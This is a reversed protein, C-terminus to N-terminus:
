RKEVEDLAIEAYARPPAPRDADGGWVGLAYLAKVAAVDRLMALPTLAGIKSGPVDRWPVRVSAVGVGRAQALHLLEVDYAWGEVHLHPLTAEAAEATLLKFGCQTDEVGAVCAGAALAFVRGMLQRWPPRASLVAARSGAVIYAGRAPVAAELVPLAEIGTAGDADMLLVLEGCAAAAGAALAAGKGRNVESRLLRVAGGGVDVAAAATIRVAGATGDTSGDDVVIVEYSPRAAEAALYACTAALTPPLRTAENLAPIVVSLSRPALAVSFLTWM